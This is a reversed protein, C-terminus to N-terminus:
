RVSDGIPPSIWLFFLFFPFGNLQIYRLFAFVLHDQRSRLEPNSGSVRRAAISREVVSSVACYLKFIGLQPLQHHPTANKQYLLQEVRKVRGKEKESAAVRKKSRSAEQEKETRAGERMSREARLRKTYKVAAFM